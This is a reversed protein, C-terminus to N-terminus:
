CKAGCEPCFMEDADIEVGCAPCHKTASIPQGSTPTAQHYGRQVGGNYANINSAAATSVQGVTGLTQDQMYDMRQQQHQANERYENKMAVQEEYRQQQMQQQQQYTQQQQLMQQQNAGMMGQQMMQAMDKMMQMNQASMSQQNAMMREYLDQQEQLQQARLENETNSGYAKAMAIQADKDLLSMSAAKIQEADMNSFLNDRNIEVNTDMAHISEASRNAEQQARLKADMMTQMNRIAINSERETIDIDDFRDQRRRIYDAQTQQEQLEQERKQKEFDYDENQVRTNFDLEQERKLKELEYDDDRQRIVFAYDEDHQAREDNYQDILRKADLQTATLNGQHQAMRLEKAIDHEMRNNSLEFEAIQRNMDLKQEAQVRMIETVNEREIKGKELTNILAAVDDDKVLLSKKLDQLAKYEEEKTRAERLRKQSELLMVFQEMEDENLLKDKNISQLAQRLMEANTASDITQKNQEQELRNRFEGTRHLYGLEKESAFLEREVARFREFDNSQDTIEMVRVVEIGKLHDNCTSLLHNKTNQIVSEPLGDQQYDLNRMMQTLTAKIGPMLLQQIDVLNVSTNDALYNTVFDNMNNIQLQMSVAINVDVLKTPITIPAFEIAGDVGVQSNFILNIIRNNVIYVRCIKPASILQLKSITREIRKRHQEPKEDKKHGFLFNTIGRGFAAIEGFVGRARFSNAYEGNKKIQEATSAAERKEIEKQEADLEKQRMELQHEAETKAPFTYIGASMMSVLQGDIYVMATCGEQVIVGKLGDSNAFETETVLHAIEGKKINWIARGSVISVGEISSTDVSLRRQQQSSPQNGVPSQNEQRNSRQSRNVEFGLAEAQQQVRQEQERQIEQQVGRSGRQIFTGIHRVNDIFGKQESQQPTRLPQGCKTCYKDNSKLNTNGCKLCKRDSTEPKSSVSIPPNFDFQSVDSFCFGCKTCFKQGPKSTTKGCKPCKM